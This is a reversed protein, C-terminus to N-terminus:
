STRSASLARSLAIFDEPTLSEPRATPDIALRTLLPGPDGASAFEPATRMIKQIQKRRRGFMARTVTRLGEVDLTAVREPVPDIVLVASDVDPVPRFAMRGVGFAIRTVALAQVGVSLAGYTRSGCRAVVREAVEKQVTVVIRRPAPRMALFAFILPSTINYPVNSLVRVDHGSEYFGSLDVELADGCVIRVDPERGWREDLDAALERDKEVLVLRHVRGRVHDSLEGHGPGVEIVVDGPDAALEAVIKRQLNPDLLFNQSLAKKAWGTV